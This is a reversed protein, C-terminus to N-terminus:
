RRRPRGTIRVVHDTLLQAARQRPGFALLAHDLDPPSTIVIGDAAKPLLGKRPPAPPGAAQQAGAVLVVETGREALRRLVTRPLAVRDLRDLAVAAVERAAFRLQSLRDYMAPTIRHRLGHVLPRDAPPGAPFTSPRYNMVPNIAFVGRPCLELGADM